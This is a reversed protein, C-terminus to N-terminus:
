YDAIVLENNIRTITINLSKELAKILDEASDVSIEGTLKRANLDREKIHVTLGYNDEFVHVIDSLPTNDFVLKNETWSTYAKVDIEQKNFHQSKKSLKVLEGPVMLMNTTDTSGTKSLKIKGTSLAVQTEGRRNHVNFQTGIVEITLESTHVMFKVFGAEKKNTQLNLQKNVKFFAEGQLWVERTKGKAWGKSIKLKSNANLMVESGDPLTINAIKGFDTEYTSNYPNSNYQWLIFGLVVIGIFVAAVRYWLSWKFYSNTQLEDEKIRKNLQEFRIKIEQTSLDKTKKFSLGLILSSAIEVEKAQEPHQLLWDDWFKKDKSNNRNVWNQFTVDSVLEEVKKM